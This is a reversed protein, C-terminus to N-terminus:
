IQIIDILEPVKYSDVDISTTRYQSEVYPINSEFKDLKFNTNNNPSVGPWPLTSSLYGSPYTSAVAM